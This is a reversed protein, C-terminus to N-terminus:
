TIPKLLLTGEMVTASRDVEADFRSVLGVANAGIIDINGTAKVFLNGSDGAGKTEISIRGSENLLLHNTQISINGGDGAAKVAPITLIGSFFREDAQGIINISNNATINIDASSMNSDTKTQIRSGGTLSLSNATLEIKGGNSVVGTEINNAILSRDLLNINGTVNIIIDKSLDITGNGAILGAQLKSAGSMQFDAANATISGGNVSSVDVIAANDLSVNARSIETPFNILNGIEVTGM